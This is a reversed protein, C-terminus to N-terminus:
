NGSTWSIDPLSTIRYHYELVNQEELTVKKLSTTSPIPFLWGSNSTHGCSVTLTIWLQLLNQLSAEIL